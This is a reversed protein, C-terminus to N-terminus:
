QDSETLNLKEGVFNIFKQSPQGTVFDFEAHPVVIFYGKIKKKIISQYKSLKARFKLLEESLYSDFHHVVNEHEIETGPFGIKDTETISLEGVRMGKIQVASKEDTWLDIAYFADEKPHSLKPKMGLAELTKLTAVQSLVGRRLIHLNELNKTKEAAKEAAQWFTNLFEKNRGNSAIFHTLLFQYQTLDEFTKMRKERQVEKPKDRLRESTKLFTTLGFLVEIGELQDPYKEEYIKKLRTIGKQDQRELAHFLREQLENAKALEESPAYKRRLVAKRAVINDHPFGYKDQWWENLVGDLKKQEEYSLIEGQLSKEVIPRTEESFGSIDSQIELKEYERPSKLKLSEVVFERTKEAEKMDTHYWIKAM